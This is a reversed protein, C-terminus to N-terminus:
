LALMKRMESKIQTLYHDELQGIVGQIRRRDIARLQFVLLLSEQTLGNVSSPSVKITHPFSTAKLRSTTPVIMVTGTAVSTTDPQVVIAPQRGAQEHGRGGPPPLNVYVVDGRKM